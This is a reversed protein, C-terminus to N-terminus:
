RLELWTPLSHLARPHSHLVLTRPATSDLALNWGLLVGSVNRGAENAEDFLEAVVGAALAHDAHESVCLVAVLLPGDIGRFARSKQKLRSMLVDHLRLVPTPQRHGHLEGGGTATAEVYCQEERVRARLDPQRTIGPLEPHRELTAGLATLWDELWLEWSAGARVSVEHSALRHRVAADM